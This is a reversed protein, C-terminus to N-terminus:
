APEPEYDPEAEEADLAGPVASPDLGNGELVERVSPAAGLRKAKSGAVADEAALEEGLTASVDVVLDLQEKLEADTMTVGVSAINVTSQGRDLRGLEVVNKEAYALKSVSTTFDRLLKMAEKPSITPDPLPRGDPGLVASNVVKALAAMAPLMSLGVIAAGAVNKRVAAMMRGEEELAEHYLRRGREREADSAERERRARELAAVTAAKGERELVERMPPAWAYNPWGVQWLRQATKRCVGAYRAAESANGPSSRFGELVKDYTLRSYRIPSRQTKPRKGHELGTELGSTDLPVGGPAREHLPSSPSLVTPSTAM